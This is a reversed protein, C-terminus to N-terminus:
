SNWATREHDLWADVEEPSAFGGRAAGILGSLPAASPPAPRLSRALIELLALREEAPLHTLEAILQERTM